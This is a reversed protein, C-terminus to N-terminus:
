AGVAPGVLNEKLLIRTQETGQIRSNQIIVLSTTPPKAMDTCPPYDDDDEKDPSEYNYSNFSVDSTTMLSINSEKMLPLDPELDDDDTPMEPIFPAEVEKRALKELDVGDFFRHRKLKAMGGKVGLRDSAKEQLLGVLLEAASMSLGPVEHILSEPRTDGQTPDQPPKGALMEHVLCGFSYWDSPRGYGLTQRVEPAWYEETGVQALLSAKATFNEKALGFDSLKAYGDKDVLVNEPKLDRYLIDNKHLEEVAIMVAAGYFRASSEPLQRSKQIHSLLEGGPCYEIILYLSNRCQFASHLSVIFPHNVTELIKRESKTGEVENARIVDKKKLVKMAYLLRSKKNRTLLVQGYAGKGLPKLVQYADLEGPASSKKPSPQFRGYSDITGDDGEQFVSDVETVSVREQFGLVKAPADTVEENTSVKPNYCFSFFVM